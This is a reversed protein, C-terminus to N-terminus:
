TDSLSARYRPPERHHTAQEYAAGIALITAEAGPRGIFSIGLPLGHVAGSPVTVSPYGAVAALRASGGTFHDGNAPDTVWAPGSTPAVLVDLRRSAFAADLGEDRAIRRCAALADRYPAGDLGGRRLAEELLDQGFWALEEKAHAENFRVVDELTRPGDGGRLALYIALDAKLEVLLVELLPDSLNKEGPFEVPDVIEAGLERLVALARDFTAGVAGHAFDLGRRAGIRAGRIRAPDLAADSQGTLVAHLLAVDAVSRAIPGATDHTHSLPVIGGGPVAGATPKLGVVGCIASPSV